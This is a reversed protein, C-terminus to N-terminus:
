SLFLPLFTSMGGGLGAGAIIPCAYLLYVMWWQRHGFIDRFFIGPRFPERRIGGPPPTERVAFMLFIVTAVGLIAVVAVTSLLIKRKM